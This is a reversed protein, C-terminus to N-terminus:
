LGDEGRGDALVGGPAAPELEDLKVRMDDEV